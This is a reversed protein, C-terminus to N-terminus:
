DLYVSYSYRTHKGRHKIETPTSGVRKTYCSASDATYMVRCKYSNGCFWIEDRIIEGTKVDLFRISVSFTSM